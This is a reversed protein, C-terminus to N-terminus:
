EFLWSNADPFTYRIGNERCHLHACSDRDVTVTLTEPCRTFHNEGMATVSGPIVLSTLDFCYDFAGKGISTVSEPISLDTLYACYIFAENGITVVSDPIHIEKLSGYGYFARVGIMRTGQPIAYSEATFAKPYCVLRMETKEFLVGDIVGLVPQNKSVIIETLQDCDAFPNDGIAVVSDPISVRRLQADRFANDGIGRIGNPVAYEAAEYACSYTILLKQQKDFLVGDMVALTPHDPAIYIDKLKECKTFPNAGMRVVCDPISISTVTYSNHFAGDGIAAVRYGDLKEPITIERASGGYDVIEATGDEQLVYQYDGCITCM